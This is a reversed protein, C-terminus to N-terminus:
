FWMWMWLIYASAVLWICVRSANRQWHQSLYHHSMSTCHTFPISQAASILHPTPPPHSCMGKSEEQALKYAHRRTPVQLWEDHRDMSGYGRVCTNVRLMHTPGSPTNHWPQVSCREAAAAGGGGGGGQVNQWHLAEDCPFRQTWTRPDWVTLKLPTVNASKLTKSYSISGSM